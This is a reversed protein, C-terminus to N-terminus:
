SCTGAKSNWSCGHSICGAKGKYDACIINEPNPTRTVYFCTNTSRNLETGKPCTIATPPPAQTPILAMTPPASPTETSTPTPTPSATATATATPTANLLLPGLNCALPLVALVIFLWKIKM